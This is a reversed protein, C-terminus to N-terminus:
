ISHIPPTRSDDAIRVTAPAAAAGDAAERGVGVLGPGPRVMIARTYAVQFGMRRVNRETGAGPPGTITALTCGRERAIRLRAAIMAQQIGRRRHDPLVSLGYLAVLHGHLEMSGAGVSRGDLRAVINVSRPHVACRAALDVDIERPTREPAAFGAVVTRAFDETSAPDSPDVVRIELHPPAPHTTEITSEGGIERYLAHEFSQVVFGARALERLLSADAYPCVEVRPEVGVEEYWAVLRDIEEASVPGDLALGASSNAWTGPIDRAAWGGGISMRERAVEGIGLGLRSEEFRAVDRLDLM